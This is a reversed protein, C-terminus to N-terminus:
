PHARTLLNEIRPLLDDKNFPKEVFEDCGSQFFAEKDKDSSLATVAIIPISRTVPNERILRTAQVGNMVPMKSDMLIIDPLYTAAMEVGEKGNTASVTEYFPKFLVNLVMNVTKDDEVILIKKKM